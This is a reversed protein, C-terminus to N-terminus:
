MLLCGSNSGSTTAQVQTQSSMTPRKKRLKANKQKSGGGSSLSSLASTSASVEISMPVGLAVGKNNNGVPALDLENMSKSLEPLDVSSSTPYGTTGGTSFKSRRTLWVHDLLQKAPPRQSPDKQFCKSLFDGLEISLGTPLPPMDDEVIRFLTTMPNCESYPPKGTLMEIVTCGLSWLDSATTAGKLEIIEPAMWNPTGAVSTDIQDFSFEKSVGFDGLKITGTKTCLVNAAKLDCHIIQRDHLYELGHLIGVTYALALKEPFVGFQKMVHYLSGGEVFELIIYLHSEQKVVGHFGLINPHSLSKLLDVEKMMSKLDDKPNDLSMRKIAVLEGASLNLARYVSGFHGRGICDGFQYEIEEGTDAHVMKLKAVKPLGGDADSYSAAPKMPKSKKPSGSPANPQLKTPSEPSEMAANISMQSTNAKKSDSFQISAARKLPEIKGNQVALRELAAMTVVVQNMDRNEYLDSTQFIESANVGYARAAQLFNYINEM